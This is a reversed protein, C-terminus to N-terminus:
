QTRFRGAARGALLAVLEDESLARRKRRPDAKADAKAVRASPNSLLRGERVCWNCFGVLEQRYENRTGAGMGEAQRATLWRELSLAKFDALRHFGCELALRNLRNATNKIRVANLGKAEQHRLYAVFHDTLLTDQHDAVADEAATLVKGKVMEARRVLDALVSEAATKDRCGTAVARVIGAGDRYKATYTRATIVIRDTRDKGVTVPATRTKEKADQWQAFREGKRVIIKAGAPLPKTATKRYVTGM